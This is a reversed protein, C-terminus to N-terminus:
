ISQGPWEASAHNKLETHVNKSLAFKEDIKLRYIADPKLNDMIESSQSFDVTEEVPFVLSGTDSDHKARRASKFLAVERLNLQRYDTLYEKAEQTSKINKFLDFTKTTHCEILQALYFM